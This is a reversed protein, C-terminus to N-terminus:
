GISTTMFVLYAQTASTVIIGFCRDPNLTLGSNASGNAGFKMGSLPYITIASGTANYILQLQNTTSGVRVGGTGSTALSFAATLATATGQTTGAAAVTTPAYSSAGGVGLVSQASPVDFVLQGDSDSKIGSGVQMKIVGYRTTTAIINQGPPIAM